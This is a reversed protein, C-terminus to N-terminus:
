HKKEKEWFIMRNFKPKLIILYINYSEPKIDLQLISKKLKLKKGTFLEKMSITKLGHEKLDITIIRQSKDPNLIVLIKQKLYEKVFALLRSSNEKYIIRFEGKRLSIYKKRLECLKKYHNLLEKNQKKSDWIMKRRVHLDKNNKLGGVDKDQKIGVEDGYYIIPPQSLTFQLLSALKTINVNNKCEFLFRNMDHNDLFTPLYFGPFKKYHKQLKEFFMESTLTNKALFEKILNNFTFDLCGDLEGLYEKMALDELTEGLLKYKLFKTRINRVRLTELHKFKIGFFWVEGILVASPKIKKIRRRFEIWFDNSPGIAHDLRFGDLDFEKLWYLANKIIYERAEPYDLNIKPIEKVDLFCIYDDPWKKFIFWKYYKSNKNKQAELFFPHKYSCHNPVFDVIVKMKNKHALKVLKKLDEKTGFHPDIEYFDTIHYGHYASTKYFPSLWIYNVGLKKLYPIKKIVGNLNGGIWDPSLDSKNKFGAFRDLFIHYIIADRFWDTKKM